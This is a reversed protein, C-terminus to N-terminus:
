GNREDDSIFLVAVATRRLDMSANRRGRQSVAPHCLFFGDKKLRLCRRQEIDFGVFVFGRGIM